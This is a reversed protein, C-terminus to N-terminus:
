RDKTSFSVEKTREFIFLIIIKISSECVLMCQFNEDEYRESNMTFM